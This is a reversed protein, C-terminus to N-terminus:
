CVEVPGLSDTKVNEDNGNWNSEVKKSFEQITQNPILIANHFDYSFSTFFLILKFPSVILSFYIFKQTDKKLAKFRLLSGSCLSIFPIFNTEINELM